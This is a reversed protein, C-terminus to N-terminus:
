HCCLTIQLRDWLTWSRYMVHMPERARKMQWRAHEYQEAPTARRRGSETRRVVEVHSNGGRRFMHLSKFKHPISAPGSTAGLPQLVPDGDIRMRHLLPYAFQHRYFYSDWRIGAPSQFLHQTDTVAPTATWRTAVLREYWRGPLLGSLTAYAIPVDATTTRDTKTEPNLRLLLAGMNPPLDYQPGAGPPICQIDCFRLDWLEQSRLWGLWLFMNAVGAMAWYRRGEVSTAQAYNREFYADFFRIHRDQLAWSPVSDFGIRGELGRTFPTLAATRNLSAQSSWLQGGTDFVYSEPHSFLRVVQDYWGTASRIQRTAGFGVRSSPASANSRLSYSEEIWALSIAPGGPPRTLTPPSLTVVGPHMAQFARVFQIKSCYQSLTRPAWSNAFDLIRMRELKLM